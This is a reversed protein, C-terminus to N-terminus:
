TGKKRLLGNAFLVALIVATVIYFVPTMQESDKWIFYAFVIGYITELNLTLSITYPNINKLLAASAVFPFATAVSSLILLFLYDQNSITFFSTTFDGSFVLYLNLCIFGSLLEYFSLVPPSVTKVLQSNMVTFLSSTFAALIGFLLGLAYRIEVKFLTSIAAIIVLGFLIEHKIIKRRHFLPDLLATFFAGTSFASLTVAVNSVKIAHYFAVWHLAIIGGTLFLM